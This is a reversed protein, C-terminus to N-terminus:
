RHRTRVASPWSGPGTAAPRAGAPRDLRLIEHSRDDIPNDPELEGRGALRFGAKMLARWSARNASSVPVIICSAPPSLSWVREAFAAIMRAGIGRGVLDPVGILYDISVAGEPVEIVGALEARYEPYDALVSYQILGIPRGELEVLYDQGPEEGDATPGFDREVAAPDV